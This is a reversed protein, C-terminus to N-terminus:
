HFSCCIWGTRNIAFLLQSVATLKNMM